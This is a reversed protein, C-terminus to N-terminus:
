SCATGDGRSHIVYGYTAWHIFAPIEFPEHGTTERRGRERGWYIYIYTYTYTHIGIYKYIYIYM